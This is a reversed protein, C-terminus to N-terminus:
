TLAQFGLQRAGYELLWRHSIQLRHLTQISMYVQPSVDVLYQITESITPLQYQQVM